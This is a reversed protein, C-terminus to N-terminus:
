QATPDVFAQETGPQAVVLPARRGTPPCLRSDPPPSTFRWTEYRSQNRTLDKEPQM